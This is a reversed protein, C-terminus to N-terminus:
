QVEISALTIKQISQGDTYWLTMPPSGRAARVQPAADKIQLYWGRASLTTDIRLGAASNVEAIQAASLTVGPRIAGFNVAASIPDICAAEILSYGQINYPISGVNQLLEMLALQLANNLWVQNVYSDIWRFDGSIQGPYFWTFAQNATTYDGYFNLGYGALYDAVTGNFVQPALGSQSRFAMTARGNTRTFDLSAVSGMLFAALEAGTTDVSPDEYIMATGSYNNTIIEGVATSPGSAETNVVNTDWMAYMYRNQKANTWRAFELKDDESPEFTTMFSVWDQTLTIVNDMFAFPTAAVAGQSEVAGSAETLRLTAAATGTAFDISSNAGATDSNVQFARLVSDRNGNAREFERTAFGAVSRDRLQGCRQAVGVFRGFEFAM